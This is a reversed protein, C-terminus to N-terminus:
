ILVRWDGKSLSLNVYVNPKVCILNQIHHLYKSFRKIM